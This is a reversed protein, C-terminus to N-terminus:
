TNILNWVNKVFKEGSRFVDLPCPNCVDYLSCEKCYNLRQYVERSNAFYYFSKFYDSDVVENFSLKKFDLVNKKVMNSILDYPFDSDYNCPFVSGDARIYMTGSTAPCGKGVKLTTGYKKNLYTRVKPSAFNLISIDINNENAMIEAINEACHFRDVYALVLDSIKIKSPQDSSIIKLTDFSVFHLNIKKAMDIIKSIEKFNNKYLTCQIGLRTKVNHQHFYESLKRLNTM